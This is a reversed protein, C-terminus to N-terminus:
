FDAHFFGSVTTKPQPPNKMAREFVCEGGKAFEIAPEGGRKRGQRAGKKRRRRRDHELGVGEEKLDRPEARERLCFSFSADADKEKQIAGGFFINSDSGFPM